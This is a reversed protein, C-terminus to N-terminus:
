ADALLDLAPLVNDVDARLRDEEPTYWRYPDLWTSPHALRPGVGIEFLFSLAGHRAYFHDIEAGRARFFRSRQALPVVRYPRRMRSAMARALSLLRDEDPTPERRSAWPVYIWEGFAHLSVVFAPREAAALADLAQTEPESLPAPGPSFIKPLFRSPRADWGEAFNRNLDVGRGNARHYRRGRGALAAEVGLFGDPNALPVVVLRRRDWGGEGRAARHLLAVATRPGPHELAHLGALVLVPSAAAGPHAVTVAWIPEGAVSRGIERADAVGPRLATAVEGFLRRYTWAPRRRAGAPEELAAAWAALTM